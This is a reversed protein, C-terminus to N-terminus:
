PHHPTSPTWPGTVHDLEEGNEPWRPMQAILFRLPEPGSTRFQFSTGAPISLCTGVGADVVQEQGELSRWVEGRGSRIFWVEEHTRHRAARTTNGPPLTCDVLWGHANGLLGHVFSGDEAVEDYADPLVTTEFM